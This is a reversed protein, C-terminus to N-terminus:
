VTEVVARRKVRIGHERIFRHVTTRHWGLLEAAKSVNGEAEELAREVRTHDRTCAECIRGDMGDVTAPFAVCQLM